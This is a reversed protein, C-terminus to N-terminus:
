ANAKEQEEVLKDILACGAKYMRDHQPNGPIGSPGLCELPDSKHMRFLTERMFRTAADAWLKVGFKNGSGVAELLKEMKRKLFHETTCMVLLAMKLEEETVPTQEKVACVIDVTSRM